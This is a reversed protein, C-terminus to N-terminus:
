KEASKMYYFSTERSQNFQRCLTRVHDYQEVPVMSKQIETRFHISLVSDDSVAKLLVVGPLSQDGPKLEHPAPSINQQWQYEPRLSLKLDLDLLYPADLKVPTFRATAAMSLHLDQGILKLPQLAYISTNTLEKVNQPTQIDAQVCISERSLAVLSVNEIIGSGWLADIQKQTFQEQSKKELLDYYPLTNGSLCIEIKGVFQNKEDLDFKCTIKRSATRSLPLMEPLANDRSVAWLTSGQYETELQNNHEHIPSFLYSQGDNTRAQVLLPKFVTLLPVQESIYPDDAQL